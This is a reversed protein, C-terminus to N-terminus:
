HKVVPFCKSFCLSSWEERGPESEGRHNAPQLWPTEGPSLLGSQGSRASRHGPFAGPLVLGTARYRDGRQVVKVQEQPAQPALFGASSGWWVAAV